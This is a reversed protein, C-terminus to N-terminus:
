DNIGWRIKTEGVWWDLMECVLRSENVSKDMWGDLCNGMMSKIGGDGM